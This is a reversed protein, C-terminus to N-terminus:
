RRGKRNHDKVIKQLARDAAKVKKNAEAAARKHGWRGRHVLESELKFYSTLREPDLRGDAVAAKVACDPEPGHSCDAFACEAALQEIDDFAALLGHGAEALQLERMGPTDILVGGGPLLVLERRTTTHRGRGDGERIAATAQREHGLLANIITSKGVGSSGLLAGTRNPLLLQHLADLSALDKASTRLVPVAGSVSEVERLLPEPDACLDAKSLVVVPEAGSEWALTLYRELRRANLEANLSTVVFVVDVNAAVIQERHDRGAARRTFVSRRPLVAEVLTLAGGDQRSIAVWDGVAPLDLKSSTEHRLRGALAAAVEGSEILLEYSSRHEVTVRAPQFGADAHVKFQEAFLPTWGFAELSYPQGSPTADQDNTRAIFVEL